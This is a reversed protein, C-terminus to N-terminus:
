ESKVEIKRPKAKESKPMIVKLVGDKIKASIQDIRIDSLISFSREYRGRQFEEKIISFDNQSHIQNATGKISIVNEEFSVEVGKDDVGPMESIIIIMKENEIIDTRPNLVILENTNEPNVTENSIQHLNKNKEKM